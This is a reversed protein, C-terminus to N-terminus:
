VESMLCCIHSLLLLRCRVSLVSLLFLCGFQDPSGLLAASFHSSHLNFRASFCFLAFCLPSFASSHLPIVKFCDSCLRAALMHARFSAASSPWLPLLPSSLFATSSIWRCLPPLPSGLMWSSSLCLSGLLWAAAPSLWALWSCCLLALCGFM